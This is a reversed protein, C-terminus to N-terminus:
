SQRRRRIIGIAAFLGLGVLALSSPEPVDQVFFGGNDSFGAAVGTLLTVTSNQTADLEVVVSSLPPTVWNPNPSTAALDGTPTFLASAGGNFVVVGLSQGIVGQLLNSTVFSTLQFSGLPDGASAVQGATDGMTASALITLTSGNIAVLEIVQGNAIPTGGNVDTFMVGTGNSTQSADNDWAIGYAGGAMVKGSLLLGAAVVVAIIRSAKM